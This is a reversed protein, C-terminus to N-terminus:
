MIGMGFILNFFFFFESHYWLQLKGGCWVLEGGCDVVGYVLVWWQIVWWFWCGVFGMVWLGRGGHWWLWWIM